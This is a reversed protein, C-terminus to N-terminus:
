HSIQRLTDYHKLIRDSTTSGGLLDQQEKRVGSFTSLIYEVDERDIGYLLFFAADLEAMLDLREAPDWKHVTPKFGAAEALPIMDNSTCTLELVRDSIWKELTVKKEWPCKQKYFDQPFMPFQEIYFFNLNVDGIKQRAVYDLAFANLNALLCCQMTPTIQESFRILPASNIVGVPPIFAAIMTRQNTQSTVNKFALLASTAPRGLATDIVEQSAWRYPCPSFEPNQHEVLTTELPQAQRFWNEPDLTISAARHDFMQIMKAEYLPLFTQKRKKWIPGDCKFGDTKLQEAARFLEADNTQHFMTFFKIGWPNGGDKRTKDWLVPVRRYIAKTIEADRKSRFVPCTHTNPNLLKFDHESLPIHRNDDLLDDMRYAFFVFDASTAKNKSGGFLLVSFKESRHVDRFFGKRNEFDYIGLLCESNVLKAFFDKTTKHTAIGTPVLLGVRGIPSVISRALEAFVPYYNIDGKGTLLYRGSHRIYSLSNDAKNKADLYKQYLDPNTTKLKDILKRRKAADTASAIDPASTDFFEREQLKIREWPPNGIVCDFGPNPRSFIDPFQKQWNLPNIQQRIEDPNGSERSHCISSDTKEFFDPAILSNGCVINKSLDALSKGKHATRLWLALQTIEVAEPSLDVGFLNDHLIFDPIKEKLEESQRPNSFNILDIIDLYKEELIDYAKILFHGSGCAPDVIKIKRLADIAELAFQALKGDSTASDLKDSDFGFKAAVSKIKEKTIEGVTHNTIFETFEPPTYYIGGKKREASKVMKPTIEPEAKSEFLGVLRIKEIDNISKEFLHGLVDVNVEYRFDYDGIDKFFNTWEDDLDLNDVEEDKQFLEGDYPPIGFPENGENISRFLDLFNRWKPNTVRHFPAVQSWARSISDRPLLERDKCFAVFIIRDILKQAIRIANDLTNNHPPGCLHHILRLRNDRYDKYLEDGVERPRKDSVELLSDARPTQGVTVPLLGDRQFLYYFQLFTDKKRLDHLTFLEYVRQTHSRHYLRFSVYNCVIGWPCEPVANLYDWCQQVPTRGTSKDRDVNVTPGKLEIIARPSIKRRSEFIGIAADAEGGNVNFKPRLNWQKKGESFLTYGLAEGFVETLFEGELATEKQDELKGTSELDAWKLIIAHAQDQAPGRLRNDQSLKKLENPLFLPCKRRNDGYRAKNFEPFLHEGKPTMKAKQLYSWLM